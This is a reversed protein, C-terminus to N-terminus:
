MINSKMKNDLMDEFHITHQSNNTEMSYLVSVNM